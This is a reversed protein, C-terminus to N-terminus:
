MVALGVVYTLLPMGYARQTVYAAGAARPYRSGISAYSLGTLLAALMSVAFALWVVNGMLGTAKGVLGYIGAGLMDGVGYIILAGLGMTRALEGHESGAQSDAPALTAADNGDAM